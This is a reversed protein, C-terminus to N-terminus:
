KRRVKRRRPKKSVLVLTPRKTQHITAYAIMGALKGNLFGMSLLLVLADFMTAPVLLMQLVFATFTRCPNRHIMQDEKPNLTRRM